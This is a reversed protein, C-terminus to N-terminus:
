TIAQGAAVLTVRLFQYSNNWDAGSVIASADFVGGNTCTACNGPWYFTYYHASDPPITASVGAIPLVGLLPQPNSNIVRLGGSVTASSASAAVSGYNSGILGGLYADGENQLWPKLPLPRITPPRAPTLLPVTLLAVALPV